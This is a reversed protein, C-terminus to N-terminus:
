EIHLEVKKCQIEGERCLWYGPESLVGPGETCRSLQAWQELGITGERRRVEPRRGEVAVRGGAGLGSLTGFAFCDVFFAM